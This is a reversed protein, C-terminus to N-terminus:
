ADKLLEYSLAGSSRQKIQEIIKETPAGDVNIWPKKAVDFVSPLGRVCDGAHICVEPDYFVTLDDKEYKHKTM